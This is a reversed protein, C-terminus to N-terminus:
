GNVIVFQRLAPHHVPCGQFPNLERRLGELDDGLRRVSRQSAPSIATTETSVFVYVTTPKGSIPKRERQTGVQFFAFFLFGLCLGYIRQEISSQLSRAMGPCRLGSKMAGFDM